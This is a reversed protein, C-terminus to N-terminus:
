ISLSFSSLSYLFIEKKHPSNMNRQVKLTEESGMGIRKKIRGRSRKKFNREKRICGTMRSLHLLNYFIGADCAPSPSLIHSIM